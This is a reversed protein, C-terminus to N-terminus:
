KSGDSLIKRLTPSRKLYKERCPLWYQKYAGFEAYNKRAQELTICQNPGSEEKPDDEMPDCEWGCIPCVSGYTKERLTPLGCCDCQFQRKKM